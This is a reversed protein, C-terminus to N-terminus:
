DDSRGALQSPPQVDHILNVFYSLDRLLWGNCLSSLTPQQQQQCSQVIRRRGVDEEAM